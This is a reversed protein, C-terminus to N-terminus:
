DNRTTMCSIYVQTHATSSTQASYRATPSTQVSYRRSTMAQTKNRELSGPSWIFRTSLPPTHPAHPPSSLVHPTRTPLGALSLSNPFGLSLHFFYILLTYHSPTSQISRAWSVSLYRATAFVTIFRDCGPFKKVLHPVTLTKLVTRSCPTIDTSTLYM